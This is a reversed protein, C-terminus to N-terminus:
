DNSESESEVEEANEPEFDEEVAAFIDTFVLWTDRAPGDGRLDAFAVGNDLATIFHAHVTVSNATTKGFYVRFQKLDFPNTKPKTVPSKLIQAM